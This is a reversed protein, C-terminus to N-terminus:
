PSESGVVATRIAGFFLAASQEWTPLMRARERAAVGLRRRLAEDEVLLGLARALGAVDGPPVLLGERGEEILFPLNGARWGVVPLGAALAEAYVTGYTEKASPLVFVDAAVYHRAVREPPLAGHVVVRESLDRRALRAHLRRSYASDACTDGVLHLTAATAPLRAFAELLSHIGKLERWNAVCLIAAGREQRLDAAAGSEQPADTIAAGDRGPPVVRVREDPVGGRTMQEALFRSAVILLSTRRYALWDLRAQIAARLPGSDCGGPPQHLLGILPIPLRRALLWPALAAAAISDLVLARAGGRAAESIVAPARCAALPFPAAPFAVFRVRADHRTALAAMRRQYLYGGTLQDPDGMTVLAIDLVDM